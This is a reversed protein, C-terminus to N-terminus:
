KLFPRSRSVAPRSRTPTRFSSDKSRPIPRVALWPFRQMFPSPDQAAAIVDDSRALGKAELMAAIQRIDWGEPVTVKVQEGGSGTLEELVAQADMGRNIAYFGARIKRGAGRAEGLIRFAFASRIFGAGELRSAVLRFSQGREVEFLQPAMDASEPPGLLESAALFGGLALFLATALALMLAILGRNM